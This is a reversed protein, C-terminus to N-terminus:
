GDYAEGYFLGNLKKDEEGVGFDEDDIESLNVYLQNKDLLEVLLKKQKDLGNEENGIEIFDNVADDPMEANVYWNLFSNEAIDKWIEVLEKSSKAVQIKNMFLENYLMLECYIFDGGGQWNVSKSIGGQEGAIVKKLRAEPLDHIYDMQEVLIYSRGMKHAVAGTTGSGAHFDLVMDGDSSGITLIRQLLREPKPTTFNYNSIVKKIEKNAEDNNGADQHLWITAPRVRGMDQLYKKVRPVARQDKGFWIRNEKEFKALAEQSYRPYTGRPPQWRVGNKFTYSFNVNNGSKAHLPQTM